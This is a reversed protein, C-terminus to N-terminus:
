RRTTQRPGNSPWAASHAPTRTPVPGSPCRFQAKRTGDEWCSASFTARRVRGAGTTAEGARGSTALVVEESLPEELPVGDRRLGDMRSDGWREENIAYCQISYASEATQEM